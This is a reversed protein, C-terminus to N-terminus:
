IELAKEMKKKLDLIALKRASIKNKEELSIEALTKGNSLEFIEDFGFGNNGRPKKSIRGLIEGKAIIYKNEYYYALYCVFRAKRDEGSFPKMKDLIYINKQRDTADRGLFRATKIGPWNDLAQIELGSDDSICPLGLYDGYEKAKKKVNEEFTKKDETVIKNCNMDKLSLIEKESFIQKFENIKGHNNSAVVLM